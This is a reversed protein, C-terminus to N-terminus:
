GLGKHRLKSGPKAKILSAYSPLEPRNADLMLVAEYEPIPQSQRCSAMGAAAVLFVIVVIFKGISM